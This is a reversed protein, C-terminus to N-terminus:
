LASIQYLDAIHESHSNGINGGPAGSGADCFPYEAYWFQCCLINGDPFFHIQLIVHNLRICGAAQRIDPHYPRWRCVTIFGNRYFNIASRKSPIFLRMSASIASRKPMFTLMLPVSQM